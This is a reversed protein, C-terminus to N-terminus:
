LALELSSRLEEVERRWGDRECADLAMGADLLASLTFAVEHGADRRRAAELSARLAVEAEERRGLSLLSGGRVRQVLPVVSAVGGRAGAHGLTADAVRLAEAHDGALL